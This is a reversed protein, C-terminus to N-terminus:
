LIRHAGPRYHPWHFKVKLNAAHFVFSKPRMM